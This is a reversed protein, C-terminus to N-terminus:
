RARLYDHGGVSARALGILALIARRKGPTDAGEVREGEGDLADKGLIGAARAQEIAHQRALQPDNASGDDEEEPPPPPDDHTETVAVRGDASLEVVTGDRFTVRESTVTMAMPSHMAVDEVTGDGHVVAEPAAGLAVTGDTALTPGDVWATEGTAIRTKGNRHLELWAHKGRYVTVDGLEFTPAAGTTPTTPATPAAPTGGCAVTALLALVHKRIMATIRGLCRELLPFVAQM